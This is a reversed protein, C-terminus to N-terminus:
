AFLPVINILSSIILRKQDLKNEQKTRNSQNSFLFPQMETIRNKWKLERLLSGRIPPPPPLNMLSSDLHPSFKKIIIKHIHLKNWVIKGDSCPPATPCHDGSGFLGKPPENLFNSVSFNLKRVSCCCSMESGHQKKKKKWKIKLRSVPFFCLTSCHDYIADVVGPDLPKFFVRTLVFEPLQGRSINLRQGWVDQMICGWCLCLKYFIGNFLQAKNFAEKLANLIAKICPMWLPMWRWLSNSSFSCFLLLQSSDMHMQLDLISRTVPSHYSRQQFKHMIKGGTSMIFIFSRNELSNELGFWLNGRQLDFLRSTTAVSFQTNWITFNRRKKPIWQPM